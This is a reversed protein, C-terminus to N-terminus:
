LIGSLKCGAIVVSFVAVGKKLMGQNIRQANKSGYFVGVAHALLAALLIPFIKRLDCQALYGAVAPIGIFISNFLAVGVAKRIPIGFVVLLPMVLVPGGAGSMSCVAGTLFGLLLTMPLNNEMTFKKEGSEKGGEKRLLISIGSLLVVLYLLLKVQGEPIILNLRVGLVAGVLSGISLRLGFALDLNGAKKYNYSGLVGSVIFAAFSLALGESVNMGLSATYFMPLLFGAVGCLGVLAGVVLNAAATMLLTIM